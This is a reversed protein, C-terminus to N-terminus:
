VMRASNGRQQAARELYCGGFRAAGHLQRERVRDQFAPCGGVDIVALMEQDGVIDRGIGPADLFKGIEQDGGLSGGQENAVLDGFGIRLGFSELQGLQEAQRDKIARRGCKM